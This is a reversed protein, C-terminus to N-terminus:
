ASEVHRETGLRVVGAVRYEVVPSRHRVDLLHGYTTETLSISRHGLARMVTFISVPARYDTTQLRAATYPRRLSHLTVAKDIGANRLAYSLSRRVDTLM